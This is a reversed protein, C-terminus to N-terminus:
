LWATLDLASPLILDAGTAHAQERGIRGTLVAISFVKSQQAMRIDDETDGIYTADRPTHGLSSLLDLLLKPHPKQMEADGIDHVSAVAAFVDPLLRDRFLRSLLSPNMGTAMALTYGERKLRTLCEGVGTLPVARAYVDDRHIYQEYLRIADGLGPHDHGLALRLQHVFTKGRTKSMIGQLEPLRMSPEVARVASVLAEDYIENTNLVLVGDCDFILCQFRM